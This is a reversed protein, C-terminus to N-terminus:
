HNFLFEKTNIMAWLLDEYSERLILQPDGSPSDTDPGSALLYELATRLEDPQPERAYAALYLERIKESEPRLDRSLRDARGGVVSLKRKLDTSNLMHLSQALNSTQVRECECVSANDPRGFVTLFESSKNYSNDPLAVARTGLPLNAFQTTAGTLQDIADLLVEAPLRSPYRHSFSQVDAANYQNVISSLQYTNSNVIVRVLEHLDFGSDIFYRELAALVKPNSPPNSDRIDDEPEILGRKFFHKWYRNVVAKSFFRNDSRRMWETLALRPDDDPDIRPIADGLAAPVLMEGTRMNKAEALGRAHFILEREPGLSPKRGVRSFFAAFSYYDDQSWREFPHHHCRACELRVGLFLQAVDEVQQNSDRVRQYWAVPPNDIVNGSAALLQSVWQDYSKNELLSDRLWAHFAFNVNLDSADDRRNKLLSAWKNAFYVAYDATQLLRDVVHSRKDANTDAIFAEVEDVLPLRGAIDLTVRRLYTADDCLSAPPVQLERLNEFIGEDIFNRSDPLEIDTAESPVVVTCTVVKDQFRVMVAAQGPIGGKAVVWGQPDVEVLAHDNSEYVALNSIDRRTGDSFQAWTRLQLRRNASLRQRAPEVILESLTPEGPQDYPMGQAIWDRIVRYEGSSPELRLGGGHAVKATAKLLLLSQDPNAPSLRRGRSGQILHVFDEAPEYGFLSLQFGNQGHIAKAHCAGANCGAKTLIPVVQNTFSIPQSEVAVVRGGSIPSVIGILLLGLGLFNKM